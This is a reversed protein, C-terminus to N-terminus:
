PHKTPQVIVMVTELDIAKKLYQMIADVLSWLLINSLITYAVMLNKLVLGGPLIKFLNELSIPATSSVNGIVTTSVTCTRLNITATFIEYNTHLM